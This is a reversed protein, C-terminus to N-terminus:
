AEDPSTAADFLSYERPFESSKSALAHNGFLPNNPVIDVHSVRFHPYEKPEPVIEYFRIRM